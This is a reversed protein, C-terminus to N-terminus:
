CKNFRVLIIQRRQVGYIKSRVNKLLKTFRLWHSSNCMLCVLRSFDLSVFSILLFNIIWMVCTSKGKHFVGACPKSLFAMVIILTPDLKCFLYKAAPCSKLFVVVLWLYLRLDQQRTWDLKRNHSLFYKSVAVSSSSDLLISDLKARFSTHRRILWKGERCSWKWSSYFCQDKRVGRGPTSHLQTTRVLISFCFGSHQQIIAFSIEEHFGLNRSSASSNELKLSCYKGGPEWCAPPLPHQVCPPVPWWHIGVPLLSVRVMCGVWLSSMVVCCGFLFHLKFLM